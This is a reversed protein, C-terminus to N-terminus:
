ISAAQALRPRMFEVFARTRPALHRGGFYVLHLSIEAPAYEDLLPVLLGKAVAARAHMSPLRVIGLGRIAAERLVSWDNAVLRGAVSVERRRKGTGLEWTARPAAGPQAFLLCAHTALDAPSRPTGHEELYRPSAFIGYRSTAVRQAVLSSDELPGVRLAVDYPETVLDVRRDTLHVVLEVAPYAALFKPVLPALLAQGIAVSTTVRMRGRPEREQASVAQEAAELRALAGEAREVFAAGADTLALSRTTRRLLQAGLHEELEAVKRSVSTKPMGLQAAAARFSGAQVVRVLVLVANLDLQGM